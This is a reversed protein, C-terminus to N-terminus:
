KKGKKKVGLGGKGRSKSKRFNSKTRQGRLPLGVAHRFGKYSRTKMLRKLDNQKTFRLDGGLLHIDEGTEVDKRRNLMWLPVGNQLPNALIGEIREIQADTIVGVKMFPDIQSLKCLCNSLMYSVGKIKALGNGLQMEGKLDTNAVRVLYRHEQEVQPTNTQEEAM